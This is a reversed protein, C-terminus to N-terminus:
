PKAAPKLIVLGAVDGGNADVAHAWLNTFADKLEPYQAAFAKALGQADAITANFDATSPVSYKLSLDLSKDTPFVNMETITYTKGNASFTVPKGGSPVDNLKVDSLEQSIKSLLRTNMYTVPAMLDWSTTYYFWANHSQGQKKYDRARELYWIGDHGIASEPRISFGALKWVGVDQLVTGLAYPAKGGTIDQIVVAYKGAPLGPLAFEAGNAAMGNVGFVGCYFQGDPSPTAGTDLLFSTRIQAHAGAFATKHDTVAGAVGNFSSQLSPIANARIAAADGRAAQEYIQQAASEIGSKSQAPMEDRGLCTQALAPLGILFVVLAPILKTSIRM